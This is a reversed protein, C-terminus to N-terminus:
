SQIDREVPAWLVEIRDRGITHEGMKVSEHPTAQLVKFICVGQYDTEMEVLDGMEVNSDLTFEASRDTIKVANGDIVEGSPKRVTVPLYYERVRELFFAGQKRDEHLGRQIQTLTKNFGDLKEYIKKTNKVVDGNSSDMFDVGLVAAVNLEYREVYSRGFEDKYSIVLTQVPPVGEASLPLPQGIEMDEKPPSWYPVSVSMGSVWTAFVRGEFMDYVRQLISANYTTGSPSNENLKEKDPQPLKPDFEVKVDQAVSKGMNSVEFRLDEMNRDPDLVRATMMPRNANRDIEINQTFLKKAYWASVGALGLLGANVLTNTRDTTWWGFFARISDGADFLVHSVDVASSAFVNEIM